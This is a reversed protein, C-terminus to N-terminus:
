RKEKFLKFILDNVSENEDLRKGIVFGIYICITIFVTELLGVTIVLISFVLGIIIGLTKGRHNTLLEDIIRQLGM